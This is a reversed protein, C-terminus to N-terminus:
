GVNPNTFSVESAFVEDIDNGHRLLLISFENLPEDDKKIGIWIRGNHLVRFKGAGNPSAANWGHVENKTM